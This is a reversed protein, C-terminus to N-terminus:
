RERADGCDATDWAMGVSLFISLATLQKAMGPQNRELLWHGIGVQVLWSCTWGGAALALAHDAFRHVVLDAASALALQAAGLALSGTAALVLAAVAFQLAWPLAAHVSRLAILWASWEVPVAIAHLWWNLRNRHHQQYFRLEELSADRLRSLMSDDASSTNVAVNTPGNTSLNTRSTSSAM